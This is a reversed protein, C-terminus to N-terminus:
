KLKWRAGRGRGELAIKKSAKLDNLIKKIMQSSVNPCQAQIERLTFDQTQNLIIKEIIEGKGTLANHIM